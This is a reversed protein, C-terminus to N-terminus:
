ELLWISQPRVKKHQWTAAERATFGAKAAMAVIDDRKLNNWMGDRKMPHHAYSIIAVDAIEHIHRLVAAPYRAYELVGAMVAVDWHGEPWLGRDMDFDPLDVGTYDCGAPLHAQLGGAGCGLDIM